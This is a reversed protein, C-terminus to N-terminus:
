LILKNFKLNLVNNPADSIQDWRSPFNRLIGLTPIFFTIIRVRIKHRSNKAHERRTLRIQKADPYFESGYSM